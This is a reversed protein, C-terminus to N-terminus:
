ALAHSPSASSSPKNLSLKQYVDRMEPRFQPSNQLCAFAMEVLTAIEKKEVITPSAPRKDWMDDMALQQHQGMSGLSQMDDMPYTGMVIELVVVCLQSILMNGSQDLLQLSTLKGLEEPIPGALMNHGLILITLTTMNGISAPIRGTLDNGEFGLETLSAMNGLEPPINGHLWNFSLNLFSLAPLTTIALPIEGRLDNFSLDMYTLFPLASFNLKGLRGHIGSNPLSIETVVLPARHSRRVVDCAVGTWNGTCPNTGQRWSDLAQSASHLTSKWRFLAAAQSALHVGGHHGAAADAFPLLCSSFLFIVMALM